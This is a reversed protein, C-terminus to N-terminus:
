DGIHKRTQNFLINDVTLFLDVFLYFLSFDMISSLPSMDNYLIFDIIRNNAYQRKDKEGTAASSIVTLM